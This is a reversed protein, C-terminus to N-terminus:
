RSALEALRSRGTWSVRWSGRLSRILCGVALATPLEWLHRGVTLLWPSEARIRRLLSPYDEYGFWDGAASPSWMALGRALAGLALPALCLFAIGCLVVAGHSWLRQAFRRVIWITLLALLAQAALDVMAATGFSRPVPGAGAAIGNVYGAALSTAATALFLLPAIARPMLRHLVVLAAVLVMIVDVAVRVARGADGLGPGGPADLAVEITQMTALGIGCVLGALLIWMADRTARHWRSRGLTSRALTAVRRSARVAFGCESCSADNGAEPPIPHWCAVCDAPMARLLPADDLGIGPRPRLALSLRWVLFVTGMQTLWGVTSISVIAVSLEVNSGSASLAQFVPVYVFTATASLVFGVVCLLAVTRRIRRRRRLAPGDPAVDLRELLRAVVITWASGVVTGLITLGGTVVSYWDGAPADAAHWALGLVAQSCWGIALWWWIARGGRPRTGRVCWAALSWAFPITAWWPGGLLSRWPAVIEALVLTLSRWPVDDTLGVFVSADIVMCFLMFHALAFALWGAGRLALAARAGWWWQARAAEEPVRGCEPCPGVSEPELPYDCAPCRDRDDM